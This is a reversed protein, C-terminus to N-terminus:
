RGAGAPNAGTKNTGTSGQVNVVPVVESAHVHKPKAPVVYVLPPKYNTNSSVNASTSGNNVSANAQTEDGSGSSIDDRVSAAQALLSNTPVGQVDAHAVGTFFVTALVSLVLIDKWM